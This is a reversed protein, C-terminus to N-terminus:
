DVNWIEIAVPVASCYEVGVSYVEPGEAAFPIIVGDESSQTSLIAVGNREDLTVGGQKKWSSIDPLVIIQAHQEGAVQELAEGFTQQVFYNGKSHEEARSGSYLSADPIRRPAPKVPKSDRRIIRTWQNRYGSDTLLGVCLGNKLRFGAAPFYEHLAGGQWDWQDFSWMKAPSEQPELRNSLQYFLLFMDAQRLRIQKRVVHPTIREYDVRVIVTTNLNKLKCEGELTVHTADGAWSAAKWANVRDEVSREENQFVASFEGGHNHRAVPQGNFFLAVGYGQKHEGKVELTLGDTGPPVASAAGGLPEAKLGLGVALGGTISREIFRRRSIFRYAM